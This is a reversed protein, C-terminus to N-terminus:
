SNKHFEYAGTQKAGRGGLIVQFTPGFGHRKKASGDLM